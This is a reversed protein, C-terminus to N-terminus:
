MKLFKHKIIEGDKRSAVLFYLGPQFNEINLRVQKSTVMYHGMFQGKANTIAISAGVWRIDYSMD